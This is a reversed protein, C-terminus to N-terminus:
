HGAVREPGRNTALVTADFNKIILDLKIEQHEPSDWLNNFEGPDAQMDYLEGLQFGHYVVLKYREDRYMTGFTDPASAEYHESRVFDKVHHTDADGCLWPLLSQGQWHDPVDIGGLELLTPAVDLLEVLGDVKRGERFHGPWHWVLPVRVLGEYFRCGKYLLGHDGLMEGHDSAFVIITRDIDGTHELAKLIRGIQDDIQKILAYYHAKVTGADRRGGLYNEPQGRRSGIDLDDIHRPPRQFPVAELKTKHTLDSKRFVPPPMSDPDFREIYEKSPTFPPHPHFFNLTAFWPGSKCGEIFEVTKEACWTTHHLEVPFGDPRRLLEHIDGGKGAVWDAYDHGGGEYLTHPSHSYQWYTYGDDTRPEVGHQATALHLKGILGCTYGADAFLRSMIPVHRPFYANGNRNVGISSPYMGSMFSARSPTCIPSQCYAHTFAVGANTLRDLNPTSVYRYGLAHITDYRQQDTMVILINPRYDSM